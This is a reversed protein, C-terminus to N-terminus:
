VGSDAKPVVRVTFQAIRGDPLKVDITITEGDKMNLIKTRAIPDRLVLKALESKLAKM